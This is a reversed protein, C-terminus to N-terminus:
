SMFTRIDDLADSVQGKILPDDLKRNLASLVLDKDLHGHIRAIHGLCTAALGRIDPNPNELHAICIDQAHRWDADYYAISLLAECIKEPNKEPLAHKVKNDYLTRVESYEM